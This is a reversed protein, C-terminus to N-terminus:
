ESRQNVEPRGARQLKELLDEAADCWDNVLHGIGSPCLSQEYRVAKTFELLTNVLQEIILKQDALSQKSEKLRNRLQNERETPRSSQASGTPCDEACDAFTEAGCDSCEDSM